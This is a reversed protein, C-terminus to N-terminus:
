LRQLLLGPKIPTHAHSRSAISKGTRIETRPASGNLQGRPRGPRPLRECFTLRGAFFNLKNHVGNMVYGYNLLSATFKTAMWISKPSRTLYRPKTRATAKEVNRM